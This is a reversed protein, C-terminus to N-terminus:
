QLNYDSGINWFLVPKKLSDYNRLLWAWAKRDYYPNCPFPCKIEEKQTYEYGENYLNLSSINSKKLINFGKRSSNDLNASALIKKHMNEINKPACFIGYVTSTMKKDNLGRLVGAAMTGSGICIVISEYKQDFLAIQKAIEQVTEPFPLGLPLMYCNPNSEKLRKQARYFNIKMRNPNELPVIKAGFEKWKEIQFEQNERINKDKYCPYFIVANLDLERCFYSIGWGAMSITTEMYGITDIGEQKLRILNPLLGRVKAFPPGPYSCALDERKVFVRGQDIEYEEIPTDRLLNM